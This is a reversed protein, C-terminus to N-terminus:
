PWKLHAWVDFHFSSSSQFCSSNVVSTTQHLSQFDQIWIADETYGPLSAGLGWHPQLHSQRGSSPSTLADTSPRIHLHKGVFVQGTYTQQIHLMGELKVTKRNERIECDNFLICCILCLEKMFASSEKTLYLLYIQHNHNNNNYTHNNLTIPVHILLVASDGTDAM